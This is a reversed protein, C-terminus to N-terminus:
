WLCSLDTLSWKSRMLFAFVNHINSNKDKNLDSLDWGEILNAVWILSWGELYAHPTSLCLSLGAVSILQTNYCYMWYAGSMLWCDTNLILRLRLYPKFVSMSLLLEDIIYCYNVSIVMTPTSCIVSRLKKRGTMKNDLKRDKIEGDRRLDIRDLPGWFLLFFLSRRM